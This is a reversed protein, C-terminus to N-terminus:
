ASQKKDDAILENCLEELKGVYSQWGSDATDLFGYNKTKNMMKNNSPNVLASNTGVVMFFSKLQRNAIALWRGFGDKSEFAAKIDEAQLYEKPEGSQEKALHSKITFIGTDVFPNGTMDIKM